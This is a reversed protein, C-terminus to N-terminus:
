FKLSFFILLNKIVKLRVRAYRRLFRYSLPMGLDFNIKSLINKEMEIMQEKTYANDCVHLYADIQPYLRSDYKSAILVATCGLLQFLTKSCKAKSLYHDIIKVSLYITEHNLRLTDQLEVIWDILIARMSRTIEPQEDIYDRAIFQKERKFYYEFIDHAYQAEANIDGINKKDYDKVDIPLDKPSEYYNAPDSFDIKTEAKQKALLNYNLNKILEVDNDKNLEFKIEEKINNLPKTSVIKDGRKYFSSAKSNTINEILRNNVSLIKKFVSRKENEQDDNNSKPKKTCDNLNENEILDIGRKLSNTQQNNNQSQFNNSVNSLARQKSM